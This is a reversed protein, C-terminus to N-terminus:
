KKAEAANSREARLAALHFLVPDDGNKECWNEYRIVLSDPADFVHIGSNNNWAWTRLTEYPNLPSASRCAFPNIGAVGDPAGCERAEGFLNMCHHRVRHAATM